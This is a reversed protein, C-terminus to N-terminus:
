RCLNLSPLHLWKTSDFWSRPRVFVWDGGETVKLIMGEYIPGFNTSSAYPSTYRWMIRDGRKPDTIM